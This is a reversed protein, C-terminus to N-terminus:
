YEPKQNQRIKLYVPPNFSAGSESVLELQAERGATTDENEAVDIKFKGGGTLADDPVTIWDCDAPKAFKCKLDDAAGSLSIAEVEVETKASSLTVEDTSLIFSGERYKVTLPRRLYIKTGDKDTVIFYAVVNKEKNNNDNKNAIKITRVPRVTDTVTQVFSSVGEGIIKHVYKYYPKDDGDLATEKWENQHNQFEVSLSDKNNWEWSYSVAANDWNTATPVAYTQKVKISGAEVSTGGAAEKVLTITGERDALTLKDDKEVLGDFLPVSIVLKDYYQTVSIWNESNHYGWVAGEPVTPFTVEQTEANAGFTLSTNVGLGADVLTYDKSFDEKCSFMVAAFCIILFFKMKNEITRNKNM